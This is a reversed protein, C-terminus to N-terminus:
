GLARAIRQVEEMLAGENEYEGHHRTDKGYTEKKQDLHISIMLDSGEMKAYIHFRPFGARALPRVFSMEGRDAHHQFSYGARRLLNVPNDTINKVQIKM